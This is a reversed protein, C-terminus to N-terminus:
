SNRYSSYKSYRGHKGYKGYRSYRNGDDDTITDNLVVGILNAEVFALSNVAKELENYTSVMQRVVLVVGDSQKALPLADSVVNLPPTDIFIYDYVKSLQDLMQMMAESTVMEAPNAVRDGACLVDLNKYKTHRIADALSSMRGLVNSVGPSAEFGFVSHVRPKRLDTDILLVRNETQAMSISLNVTTTTKGESPAPSSFLIRKCGDKLVSFTLNTRISRYAERAYFANEKEFVNSEVPSFTELKNNRM